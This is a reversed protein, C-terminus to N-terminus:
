STAYRVLPLTVFPLLPTTRNGRQTPLVGVRSFNYTSHVKSFESHDLGSQTRKLHWYTKSCLSSHFEAPTRPPTMSWKGQRRCTPAPQPMSNLYWRGSVSSDEKRGETRIQETRTKPIAEMGQLTPRRRACFKRGGQASGSGSLNAQSESRIAFFSRKLAAKQVDTAKQLRLPCLLSAKM